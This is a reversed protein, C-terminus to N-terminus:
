PGIKDLFEAIAEAGILPAACSMARCHYLASQGNRLQKESFVAQLDAPIEIREPLMVFHWEPRWGRQIARVRPLLMEADGERLAIVVLQQEHSQIEAAILMQSAAAPARLVLSLGSRITAVGIEQLEPSQLLHGLRLFGTAAASNASPLSNDMYEKPRAILPDHRPGNFYFGGQAPDGFLEVMSQALQQAAALWQLNWDAAYLRVLANIMGAYDDAFAPQYAHGHRFAHLLGDHPSVMEKLIFNAARQAAALYTAEPEGDRAFSIAAAAFAEIALANWHTIVKDDKGPRVRKSRAEFLRQRSTALQQELTELPRNLREAWEAIPRPLNLINHGEFNGSDTVGYIKRFDDADSGLLEDIEAASWVYYKGEEGESDADEASHFGGPPDAM